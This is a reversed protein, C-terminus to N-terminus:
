KWLETDIARQRNLEADITKAEEVSWCGALHDLDHHPRRKEQSGNVAQTLLDIVTKNLSTGNREAQQQIKEAIATPVDRLTIAKVIAELRMLGHM